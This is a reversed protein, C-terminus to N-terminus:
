SDGRKLRKLPPGNEQNADVSLTNVEEKALYSNLFFSNLYTDDDYDDVSNSRSVPSECLTALFDFDTRCNRMKRFRWCLLRRYPHFMEPISVYRKFGSETVFSFKSTFPDYLLSLSDNSFLQSCSELEDRSECLPIYNKPSFVDLDDNYGNSKGFAEYNRKLEHNAVVISVASIM